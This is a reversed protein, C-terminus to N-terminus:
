KRCFGIGVQRVVMRKAVDLLGAIPRRRRIGISGREPPDHAEVTAGHDGAILRAGEEDPTNATAMIISTLISGETIQIM